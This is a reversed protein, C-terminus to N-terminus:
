SEYFRNKRSGGNESYDEIIYVINMNLSNNIRKNQTYTFYHEKSYIVRFMLRKYLSYRGGTEM